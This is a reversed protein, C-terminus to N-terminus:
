KKGWDKKVRKIENSIISTTEKDLEIDYINKLYDFLENLNSLFITSNYSNYIKDFQIILDKEKNENFKSESDEYLFKILKSQLEKVKISVHYVFEKEYWFDNWESCIEDMSKQDYVYDVQNIIGHLKKVEYEMLPIDNKRLFNNMDFKVHKIGDEVAIKNDYEMQQKRLLLQEEERQRDAIRNRERNKLFEDAAGIGYQKEIKTYSDIDSIFNLLGM